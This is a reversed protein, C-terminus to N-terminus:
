EGKPPAALVAEVEALRSVPDGAGSQVRGSDPVTLPPVPYVQEGRLRLVERSTVLV